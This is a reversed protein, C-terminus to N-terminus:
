GGHANESWARVMAEAENLLTDLHSESVYSEAYIKLIDETGSPRMAVWGAATDLRLGGISAGNGRAQASVSTLAEDALTTQTVSAASAKKVLNRVHAPAPSDRRAYFIRGHREVLQDLQQVLSQGSVAVMEAALLGMVIGDKDTSWPSGDFAVFSAGASEEGGFVLSRDFMGEVFWKFGVPVEFVTRGHSAVVRDVLASTVVTRGVRASQPWARTRLLHDVSLALFHNPNMVGRETVIGHRDSDPDNGVCVDFSAAKAAVSTMAWPSSCDMRIVGDHDLCMFAFQADVEDNLITLALGYRAQIRRWVPLAAGGLPDVGIRVGARQIAAINIVRELADVYAGVFDYPTGWAAGAEASAVRLQSPDELLANARAAIRDTLEAEAPGGSAPNYKFGGDHPPNHSPTIIIGDAREGSADENWALIARSVLPTAVLEDNPARRTDVGHAALVRLASALAYASLAHSDAGIFLPGRIGEEARVEIIAQTLAYVHAQQFSTRLSSGRHGSTGFSVREEPVRYDPTREFYARALADLDVLDTACATQGARPHLAM